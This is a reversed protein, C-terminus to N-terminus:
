GCAVQAGHEALHMCIARGIGKTGGTVLAVRDKFLIRTMIIGGLREWRKKLNLGFIEGCLDCLGCLALM